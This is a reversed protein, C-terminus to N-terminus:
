KPLRASKQRLCIRWGSHPRTWRYYFINEKNVILYGDETLYHHSREDGVIRVKLETGDAQRMTVLGPKAPVAFAGVCASLAVSTILIFRKLSKM